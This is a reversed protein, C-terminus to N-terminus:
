AKRVQAMFADLEDMMEFFGAQSITGARLKEHLGQMFSTALANLRAERMVTDGSPNTDEYEEALAWLEDLTLKRAKWRDTLADMYANYRMLDDKQAATQTKNTSSAKKAAEDEKQQAKQLQNQKTAIANEAKIKADQKQRAAKTEAQKLATQKERDAQTQAEVREEKAKSAQRDAGAKAAKVGGQVAGADWVGMEAAKQKLQKQNILSQLDAKNVLQEYEKTLSKTTQDHTALASTQAAKQDEEARKVTLEAAKNQRKKEEELEKERAKTM